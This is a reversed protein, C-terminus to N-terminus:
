ENSKLVAIMDIDRIKKTLVFNAMGTFIMTLVLSLLYTQLTVIFPFTYSDTNSVSLMTYGMWLGTPLGILGGGFAIIYNENFVLKKVESDKFGLVKLTALERQREFINISAINYMVAIALIAALFIMVGISSTSAAMNETLNNLSDSKSQISSVAPIDKLEDMVEKEANANDLKLVVSNACVGEGLIRGAYDISCYASQGIYQAIIGRVYTEKKEKGPLLSKIYVMDNVKVGLTEAMKQPILIGQKPLKAAEGKKDTVKYMEPNDILGTFGADKKRWGNSIEVGAEVVPELKSVHSINRIRSMEEANLFKNFNVKIDYNQINKYQQDIMYNISDLMSLSVLVLATSFIVGISTMMARKKYRFLNRLIIKWSYNLNRWFAKIRELLITKGSKPAKPRMAQSPTIKLVVKCANYGALICFFLTIVSAPIVLEPYIKMDAPPLHFYANEMNTFGIGLYMGCVAGLACGILAVFISYSLYHFLVQMNSFGFAKLIGIQTRQNEVMRGMMIYIIVAAVLFFVIPFTGGTAKLGKMEETLMRNSIQDESGIVSTAGYNKLIKKFEDKADEIDTGNRLIASINNISGNFDFIAQGFSNKIYVIGFKTNDPMLEGSDKLVYVFEPSKVSGAVKLKIENGNIIPYIYDGRSLKHAKYFEEEILCQNSENESFYKGSKIVVDNVIDQKKDPLTILRVTANMDSIKMKSDQVIRGNAMKVYPLAKIRDIIGEPAKYFDAWIDGFRYESYYKASALSLNKFTANIGSYFMVGIMVIVIISIFQGKAENADRILKRLLIGM